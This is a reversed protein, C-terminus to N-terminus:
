QGNNSFPTLNLRNEEGSADLSEKTDPDTITINIPTTSLIVKGFESGEIVPYGFFIDLFGPFVFNGSYMDVTLYDPLANLTTLGRLEEFLPM